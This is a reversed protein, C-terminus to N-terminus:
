DSPEDLLDMNEILHVLHHLAHSLDEPGSDGSRRAGRHAAPRPPAM